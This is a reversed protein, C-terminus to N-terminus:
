ALEVDRKFSVEVAVPRQQTSVGDIASVSSTQRGVRSAYRPHHTNEQLRVTTLPRSKWSLCLCRRCALFMVPQPKQSQNLQQMERRRFVRPRRHVMRCRRQNRGIQKLGRRQGRIEMTQCPKGGKGKGGRYVRKRRRGGIDSDHPLNM